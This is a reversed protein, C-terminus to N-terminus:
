EKNEKHFKELHPFSNSALQEDFSHDKFLELIETTYLSKFHTRNVAGSYFHICTNEYSQLLAKKADSFKTSQFKALPTEKKEFVTSSEQAEILNSKATSIQSYITAELAATSYLKNKKYVKVSILLAIIYVILASLTILNSNKFAFSNIIQLKEQIELLINNFNM